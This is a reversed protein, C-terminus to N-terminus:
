IFFYVLDGIMVETIPLPCPAQRFLCVFDRWTSLFGGWPLHTHMPPLAFLYEVVWMFFDSIECTMEITYFSSTVYSDYFDFQVFQMLFFFFIVLFFFLFQIFNVSSFLNFNCLTFYLSFWMFICLNNIFITVSLLRIMFWSRMRVNHTCIWTFHLLDYAFTLHLSLQIM